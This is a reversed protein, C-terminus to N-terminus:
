PPRRNPARAIAPRLLPGRTAPRRRCVARPARRCSSNRRPRRAAAIFRNRNAASASAVAPGAACPCDACLGDCGGFVADIQELVPGKTQDVVFESPRRIPRARQLQRDVADAGFLPEHLVAAAAPAEAFRDVQCEFSRAADNRQKRRVRVAHSHQGVRLLTEDLRNIGNRATIKRRRRIVDPPALRARERRHAPLIVNAINSGRSGNSSSMSCTVASVVSCTRRFASVVSLSSATPTRPGCWCLM